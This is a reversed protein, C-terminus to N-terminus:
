NREQRIVAHILKPDVGYRRGAKRVLEDISVQGELTKASPRGKSGQVVENKPAVHGIAMRSSNVGRVLVRKLRGTKADERVDYHRVAVRSPRDGREVAVTERQDVESAIRSGAVARPGWEVIM